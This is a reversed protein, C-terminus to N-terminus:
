FWVVQSRIQNEQFELIRYAFGINEVEAKESHRKIQISAAPTVTQRIHESTQEDDLHLHGCFIHIPQTRSKLLNFVQKDGALPFALHPTTNTPM